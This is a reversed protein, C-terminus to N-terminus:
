LTIIALLILVATISVMSWKTSNLLRGGAKLREALMDDHVPNKQDAQM